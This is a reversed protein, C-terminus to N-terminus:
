LGAEAVAAKIDKSVQKMGDAISMQGAVIKNFNVETSQLMKSGFPFRIGAHVHELSQQMAGLEPHKEDKGLEELVDSRTIVGGNQGWKTQVPKSVLWKMFELGALARDDPLGTPVGITWAGSIPRPGASGGPVVAYGIKDVVKSKDPNSLQPAVAVVMHGQLADGSQMAAIVGAQDITQPNAPGIKLLELYKEMAAHAEPTDITPSWDVGAEKIYEIGYSHLLSSFDYTVSNGGAAGQGRSVYGYKVLGAEMAKKGNEIAEDWTKPPTMGLQEYVDKRYALIHMNGNLPMAVAPASPDTIKKTDDWNSLGDFSAVGPDWTFSPDIDTLPRMWGQGYFQGVWGENIQFLDFANSKQQMANIQQTMLGDFPFPQLTVKVGSEKEYDAVIAKYADFWPTTATAVVLETVKSGGGGGSSSSGGTPLTGQNNGCASLSALAPVSASALALKILSRRSMGSM